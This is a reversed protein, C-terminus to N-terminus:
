IDKHFNRKKLKNQIALMIKNKKSYVWKPSIIDKPYGSGVTRHIICDSPLYEIFNSAIEVYEDFSLPKWLGQKYMKELITNKLAILMHLKIGDIKLSSLYKATQLMDQKTENLLGLIIHICLHIDYKKILKYAKLFDTLKEKRNILILTKDHITQLGLEIAVFPLFKKYSAILKIKEEDICDARTSISLGVIDPHSFIAEDYIQKLKDVNAYTNSFSQFYAIFKKARYRAKRVEINKLIQLKIPTNKKHTRSSSGHKDCYICGRKGKTGDRNPCTFGADISVKYTKCHFLNQLYKNFSFYKSM